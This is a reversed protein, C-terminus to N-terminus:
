DLWELQDELAARVALIQTDTMVASCERIVEQLDGVEMDPESEQGHTAAANIFDELRGRLRKM